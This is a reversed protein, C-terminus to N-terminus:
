IQNDDDKAFSNLLLVILATAIFFNTIFVDLVHGSFYAAGLGVCVSLGLMCNAFTVRKKFSLLLKIGSIVLIIPLPLIFLILGLIGLTYYQRYFDQEIIMGGDSIKSYGMGVLKETSSLTDWKYEAFLKQLERGNSRNEFPQQLVHYWFEPDFELPYFGYYYESPFTFFRVNDQDKLIYLLQFKYAEESLGELNGIKDTVEVLEKDQEKLNSINLSDSNISLVAPAFPLVLYVVAVMIFMFGLMGKHISEKRIFSIILYVVFSVISVVFLGYTSVRTGIMLMALAQLLILIIVPYKKKVDSLIKYMIPLLVFLLAGMENAGRYFGVSTLQKPNFQDYGGTFWSVFNAETMGGYSGYSYGIINSGVILISIFGVGCLIMHNFQKKTFQALHIVYMLVFPFALTLIYKLEIGNSYKFWIPFNLDLKK